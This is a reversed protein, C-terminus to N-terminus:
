IGHIQFRDLQNTILEQKVLLQELVQQPEKGHAIMSCIPQGKSIISDTVPIDVVDEPWEFGDLIKMDEQAYVIQYATFGDQVSKYDLLEGQCAKIHRAFLDPNNLQMSAPPRPNIELVYSVQGCQIFDLSNLGKLSLMSVLKNLWGSIQAKQAVSLETSNIIGSFIFEDRSNLSITWQRNFGVVQSRKGDALFLVSHPVGEQYKQWYVSPEATEGRHYRRIGVGGQGQLPKLLWDAEQDPEHYSVEPYPIKLANLLSFFAPKDQLRAFVEAQNGLLILRSNICRLSDLHREFGSGYVVCTVPYRGLFYDIASLLYEEALSPILLTEEAYCLTDQDGWLDIALPKLGAKQAVQALMRASKAVVLLYHNHDTGNTLNDGAYLYTL